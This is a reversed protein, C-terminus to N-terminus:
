DRMERFKQKKKWFVCTEAYTPIGPRGGLRTCKIASVATSFACSAACMGVKCCGLCIPATSSMGRAPPIWWKSPFPRSTFASRAPSRTAATRARPRSWWARGGIWSPRAPKGCIPAAPRPRALGSGCILIDVDHVLAQMDARVGARPHHLRGAHGAKGAARMWRAAQLGSRRADRGPAARRGRHYLRPGTRRGLAAPLAPGNFARSCVSERAPTCPSWCPRTKPGSASCPMASMWGNKSWRRCSSRGWGTAATLAWLAPRCAWASRRWWPRLWRGAAKSPWRRWARGARGPPCNEAASLSIWAPMAWALSVRDSEM